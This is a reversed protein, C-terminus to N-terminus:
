RTVKANNGNLGKHGHENIANWLSDTQKEFSKVASGVIMKVAVIVVASTVANAGAVYAWGDM